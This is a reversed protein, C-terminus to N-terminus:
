KNRFSRDNFFFFFIKISLYEMKQLNSLPFSMNRESRKEEKHRNKIKQTQKKKYIKDCQTDKTTLTSQTM